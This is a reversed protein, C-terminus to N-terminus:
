GNVPTSDTYPSSPAPVSKTTRVELVPRAPTKRDAGPRFTGTVTVWSDAPPASTGRMAVKVTLSDAACCNVIMRTLYWTGHRGPTVFGKLLVTHGRLTEGGDQRARITFETLSLPAPDKRSLPAVPGSDEGLSDAARDSDRAATYSGLAPPPFFLVALVPLFLLWAVGPGRGHDHGHASEESDATGSRALFPFGDRAAALTGAALLLAGSGILLPRMGEKVYRLSLDSLLAAHLLAGGALVLLLAQFPRRM